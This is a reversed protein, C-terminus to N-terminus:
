RRVLGRSDLGALPLDLACVDCFLYTICYFYDGLFRRNLGVSENFYFCYFLFAGAVWGPSESTEAPDLGRGKLVKYADWKNELSQWRLGFRFWRSQLSQAFLRPPLSSTGWM